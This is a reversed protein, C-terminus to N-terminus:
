EEPITDIAAALEADFHHFVEELQKAMLSQFQNELDRSKRRARMKTQAACRGLIGSNAAQEDEEAEKIQRELAFAKSLVDDVADVLKQAM